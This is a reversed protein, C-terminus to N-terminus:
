PKLEFIAGAASNPGGQSTVGFLRGRPDMILTGNPASGDACNQESCFPYLPTLKNGNLRYVVGAGVGGEGTGGLINLGYVNGSSDAILGGSPLYGDKCKITCFVHPVSEQWGSGNPTLKFVAGGESNNAGEPTGYIQGQADMALAGIPEQGDACNERTCFSYLVKEMMPTRKKAPSLEYVAGAGASGGFIANGFLNGSADVMLEGSPTSGDACNAEGCFAYLTTLTWTDDNPTLQFATGLGHTGGSGTTGYLPSIGDYLAGSAKGFYSLAQDPSNGDNDQSCFSHLVKLAKTAPTLEFIM